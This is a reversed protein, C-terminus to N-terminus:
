FPLEDPMGDPDDSIDDRMFSDIIDQLDKGVKPHKSNEEVAEYLNRIYDSFLGSFRDSCLFRNGKNPVTMWIEKVVPAEVPNKNDKCIDMLYLYAGNKLSLHYCNDHIITEHHYADSLFFAGGCTYSTGDEGKKVYTEFDFMPHWVAGGFEPEISNLLEPSERMWELKDSRTDRILKELFSILYSETPTLTSIVGNILLDTSVKLAKSATVLFEISPDTTNGAKELRSMYGPQCGADREIQGLKVESKKLLERINRFLIQKNFNKEEDSNEQLVQLQARRETLEDAIRSCEQQLLEINKESEGSISNSRNLKLHTIKENFLQYREELIRIEQQLQLVTKLEESESNLAQKSREIEELRQIVTDEPM